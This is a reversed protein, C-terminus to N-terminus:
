SLSFNVMQTAIAEEDDDFSTCYFTLDKPIVIIRDIEM